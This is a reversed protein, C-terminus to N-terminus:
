AKVAVEHQSNCYYQLLLVITDFNGLRKEPLSDETHSIKNISGQLTVLEKNAIAYLTKNKNSLHKVVAVANGNCIVKCMGIPFTMCNKSSALQFTFESYENDSHLIYM